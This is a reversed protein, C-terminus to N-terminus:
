LIVIEEELSVGHMGSVRKRIEAILSLVETATAGGRNVIFNAHKASVEAGGVKLGKLGASEILRGASREPSPNKFISGVSPFEYPQKAKRAALDDAILREGESKEGFELAFTASWVVYTGPERKFASDRYAFFLQDRPFMEEAWGAGTKRLVRVRVLDDATESGFSGANGRVAGGITGPIGALHEMGRLGAAVARMVVVRTVAGAEATVERKGGGQERNGMVIERNEMKIVLGGFGEDRCFFNAGGGLIFFPVGRDEAWQLAERLEGLTSVKTFYRAEGGVHLTSFRALSVREEFEVPM